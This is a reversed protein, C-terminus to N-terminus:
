GKKEKFHKKYIKICEFNIFDDLMTGDNAVIDDSGWFNFDDQLWENVNYYFDILPNGEDVHYVLPGYHIFDKKIWIGHSLMCWSNKGHIDKSFGVKAVYHGPSVLKFKNTNSLYLDM